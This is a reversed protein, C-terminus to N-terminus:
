LSVVIKKPFRMKAQINGSKFLLNVGPLIRGQCKQARLITFAVPWPQPVPSPNGIQSATSKVLCTGLVRAAM